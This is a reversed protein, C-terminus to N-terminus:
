GLRQMLRELIHFAAPCHQANPAHYSLHQSFQYDDTHPYQRCAKPRFDYIFCRKDELLFPCPSQRMVWDGDEDLRLYEAEFEKRKMGLQKSIRSIDAPSLMPPIHTCCQACDLCDIEKFVEKHIEETEEDLKKANINKAKKLWKKHLKKQASAKQQWQEFLSSSM